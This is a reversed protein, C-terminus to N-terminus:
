VHLKGIRIFYKKFSFYIFIFTCTNTNNDGSDNNRGKDVGIM